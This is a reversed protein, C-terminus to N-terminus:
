LFFPAVVHGGRLESAHAIQVSWLRDVPRGLKTVGILFARDTHSIMCGLHSTGVAPERACSKGLKGFSTSKASRTIVLIRRWTGSPSVHFPSRHRPRRYM